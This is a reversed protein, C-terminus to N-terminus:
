SGSFEGRRAELTWHGDIQGDLNGSKAALSEVSIRESVKGLTADGGWGLSFSEASVELGVRRSVQGLIREGLWDSRLILSGGVAVVAVLVILVILTKIIRRLM